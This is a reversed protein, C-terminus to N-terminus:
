DALLADGAALRVEADPDDRLVKRLVKVTDRRLRGRLRGFRALAGAAALRVEREAKPDELAQVLAPVGLKKAKQGIAVLTQIALVRMRANKDNVVEALTKVALAAASGYGQLVLAATQRVDENKDKLSGAVKRITKESDKGLPITALARLCGWRVFSNDDDLAEVLNATAKSATPGMTELVYIAALKVRPNKHRLNKALGPVAKKLGEGLPDEKSKIQSLKVRTDAIAELAQSAALCVASDPHAVTEGLRPCAQALAKILPTSDPRKKVPREGEARPRELFLRSGDDEILPEDPRIDVSGDSPEPLSNFTAATQQIIKACRCLVRPDADGLGSGAVPLIALAAKIVAGRHNPGGRTPLGESLARLLYFMGEAAGLRAEASAKQEKYMAALRPVVQDPAAGLRGLGRAAAVAVEVEKRKLLPQLLAALSGTWKQRFSDNTQSLQGLSGILNAAAILKTSDGNAVVEKLKTELREAIDQWIKESAGRRWGPLFLAQRLDGITRLAESRKQLTTEWEKQNELRREGQPLLTKRLEELPNSAPADAGNVAPGSLVLTSLLLAILPASFPQPLCVLYM